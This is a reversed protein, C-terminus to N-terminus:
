WEGAYRPSYPEVLKGVLFYKLEVLQRLHLIDHAVWAALMDGAHFKGAVPHTEFAELDPQDLEALWMLSKQREDLFDQLSIALERQNYNRETVWGAPNIPPWEEGPRHLLYDFRQRFDEREEDYLHNVVELISWDDPSPKVKAQAETIDAVLQRILDGNQRLQEQCATFDM